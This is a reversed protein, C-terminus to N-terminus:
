IWYWKLRHSLTRDSFSEEVIDGCNVRRRKGDKLTKPITPDDPNLTPLIKGGRARVGMRTLVTSGFM